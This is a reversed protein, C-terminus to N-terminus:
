HQEREEGEEVVTTEGGHLGHNATRSPYPGDTAVIKGVANHSIKLISDKNLMERVFHCCFVRGAHDLLQLM